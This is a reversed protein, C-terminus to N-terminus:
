RLLLQTVGGVSPEHLVEVGDDDACTRSPKKARALRTLATQTDQQDVV